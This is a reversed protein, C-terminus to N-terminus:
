QSNWDPTQKKRQKAKDQARAVADAGRTPDRHLVKRSIDPWFEQFVGGATGETTVILGNGLTEGWGSEQSPYYLNSIAGALINGGVNSYNPEWRGSKDHRCIYSSGIAYLLRHRFTGHGLRFFRPDQHLVIPLFANGIMEGDFEDLYAAGARKGFGELGWGFGPDQDFGEHLGAVLFAAVFAFPDVSSRIALNFKQGPSLSQANWIYSTNFTPVVGLIRQKEEEKLQQEAEKHTDEPASTQANPNQTSSSSQTATSQGGSTQAGIAPPSSSSSPAPAQPDRATGNQPTEAAATEFQPIPADPLPDSARASVATMAPHSESEQAQLAISIAALMCAAITAGFGSHLRATM